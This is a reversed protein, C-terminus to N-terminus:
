CPAANGPVSPFTAWISNAVANRTKGQGSVLEVDCRGAEGRWYIPRTRRQSTGMRIKRSGGPHRSCHNLPPGSELFIPAATSSNTPNFRLSIMTFTNSASYFEALGAFGKIYTFQQALAFTVHGFPPVEPLSDIVVADTTTRFGVAIDVPSATPNVIAIATAFGNSDDYPVLIRNAAPVAPATADQDQLGPVRNTFIVYATIGADADLEGWGQTLTAATGPTHLFLSSGSDM